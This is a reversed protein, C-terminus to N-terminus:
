KTKYIIAFVPESFEAGFKIAQELKAQYDNNYVIIVVEQGSITYCTWEYFYKGEFQDFYDRNPQIIDVAVSAPVAKSTKCVAYTIKETDIYIDTRNFGDKIEIKM